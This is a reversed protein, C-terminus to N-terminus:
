VRTQMLTVQYSRLGNSPKVWVTDSETFQPPAPSNANREFEWLIRKRREVCWERHSSMGAEQQAKQIM